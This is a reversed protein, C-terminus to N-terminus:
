LQLQICKLLDEKLVLIDLSLLIWDIVPELLLDSHLFELLDALILNVRSWTQALSQDLGEVM